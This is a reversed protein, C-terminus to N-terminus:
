NRPTPNKIWTRKEAQGLKDWSKRPSGDHYNPTLKVDQEYAAQGKDTPTM